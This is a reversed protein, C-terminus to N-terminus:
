SRTGDSDAGPKRIRTLPTEMTACEDSEEGERQIMEEPPMVRLPVPEGTWGCAGCVPREWEVEPAEDLYGQEPSLHPSGCEPCEDPVRRLNRIFLSATVNVAHATQAHATEADHWTASSTHTLWNAFDWAERVATRILKRRKENSSGSLLETLMHDMWGKVDALKLDCDPWERAGQLTSIYSILAERCAVGVSRYGQIDIAQDLLDNIKEVLRFTETLPILGTGDAPVKTTRPIRLCLGVHFTVVLDMSPFQDQSYLNMPNTVIWWRGDDAHLDWVDHRHGAITEAYVKQAFSVSSGEPSQGLFYSEVEAKEEKTFNLM